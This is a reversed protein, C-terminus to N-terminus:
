VFNKVSGGHPIIICKIIIDIKVFQEITLYTNDNQSICENIYRSIEYLNTNPDFIIVVHMYKGTNNSKLNVEIGPLLTIDLRKAYIKTILYDYVMFLNANTFGLLKYNYTKADELIEIADQYNFDLPKDSDENLKKEAAPGGFHNHVSFKTFEEM